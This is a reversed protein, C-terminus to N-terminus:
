APCDEEGFLKWAPLIRIPSAFATATVPSDFYRYYIPTTTDFWTEGASNNLTVYWGYVTNDTDGSGDGNHTFTAVSNATMGWLGSSVEVPAGWTIDVHTYGDFDCETLTPTESTEEPTNDPSKFLRVRFPNTASHGTGIFRTLVREGFNTFRGEAM